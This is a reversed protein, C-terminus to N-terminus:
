CSLALNQLKISQNKSQGFEVGLVYIHGFHSFSFTCGICIQTTSVLYVWGCGEAAGWVFFSRVNPVHEGRGTVEASVCTLCFFVASVSLRFCRCSAGAPTEFGPSLLVFGFVGRKAFLVGLFIGPLAVFYLPIIGYGVYVCVLFLFHVADLSNGGFCM